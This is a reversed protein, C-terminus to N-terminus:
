VDFCFNGTNSTMNEVATIRVRQSSSIMHFLRFRLICHIKNYSANCLAGVRKQIQLTFSEEFAASVLQNVHASHM